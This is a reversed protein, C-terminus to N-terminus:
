GRRFRRGISPLTALGDSQGKRLVFDEFEDLPLPKSILYGQVLDCGMVQLLALAEPKDVGEATVEMDLAHALDITSRVLLPDRQTTALGSIFSKDIKLEDVPLRQIYALSSFGSGYDDIALRIGADAFSQLNALAGDPDGIMATETIEFGIIGSAEPILALVWAAFDLDPLLIGSVNVDIKIHCGSALLRAQDSIATKLVWETLARINGTEEALPIFLDPPVMGRVPHCWRLLAEAADVEATRSRLKPQYFLQFEDNRIAQQLDRMLSLREGAQNNEFGRAFLLRLHRDRANALAAEALEIVAETIGEEGAEAVGITVSLDFEFGDVEIRHAVSSSLTMLKARAEAESRAAFVFELTTRGARGVDCDPLQDRVRDCISSLLKNAFAYGVTLRLAAFRDIEVAAFFSRRDHRDIHETGVITRVTDLASGTSRASSTHDAGPARHLQVAAPDRTGESASASTRDDGSATMALIQNTFPGDRCM